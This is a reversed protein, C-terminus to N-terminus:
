IKMNMQATREDTGLQTAEYNKIWEQAEHAVAIYELSPTKDIEQGQRYARSIRTRINEPLTFWHNKCGWMRPPVLRRCGPWHCFHTM